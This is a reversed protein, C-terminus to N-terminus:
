RRELDRINKLIGQAIMYCEPRDDSSPNRKEAMAMGVWGEIWGIVWWLLHNSTASVLIFIDNPNDHGERLILHHDAMRSITKVQYGGVLDPEGRGGPGRWPVGVALSAIFEGVAAQIDTDYGKGLSKFGAKDKQGNAQAEQRRLIGAYAAWQYEKENIEIPIM